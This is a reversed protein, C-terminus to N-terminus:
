CENVQTQLVEQQSAWLPLNHNKDNIDNDSWECDDHVYKMVLDTMM